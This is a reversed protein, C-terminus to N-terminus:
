LLMSGPEIDSRLTETERDWPEASCVLPFTLGTNSEFEEVTIGLAYKFFVQAQSAITLIDGVDFGYKEMLDLKVNNAYVGGNGGITFHVNGHSQDELHYLFTSM